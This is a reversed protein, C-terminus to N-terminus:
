CHRTSNANSMKGGTISKLKILLYKCITINKSDSACSPPTAGVNYGSRNTPYCPNQLQVGRMCIIEKDWSQGPTRSMSALISIFPYKPFRSHDLAFAKCLGQARLELNFGVHWSYEIFDQNYSLFASFFFCSLMSREKLQLKFSNKM